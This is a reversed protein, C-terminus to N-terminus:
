FNYHISATAHLYDGISEVDAIEAGLYQRLSDPVNDDVSFYMRKRFLELKYDPTHNDDNLTELFRSFQNGDLTAQAEAVSEFQAKWRDVERIDPPFTPFDSLDTESHLSRSFATVHFVGVVCRHNVAILYQIRSRRNNAVKWCGRTCERVKANDIEGTAANVCLPFLQQIKIFAVRQTIDGVDCVVQGLENVNM